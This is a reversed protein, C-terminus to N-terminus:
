GYYKEKEHNIRFRDATKTEERIIDPTDSSFRLLTGKVQLPYSVQYVREGNHTEPGTIRCGKSQYFALAEKNGEGTTLCFREMGAARASETVARFLSTGVGKRRASPLVSFFTGWAAPHETDANAYFGFAGIRSGNEDVAAILTGNNLLKDCLLEATTLKGNSLQKGDSPQRRNSLPPTLYEGLVCITQLADARATLRALHFHFANGTSKEKEICASLIDSSVLRISAAPGTARRDAQTLCVPVPKLSNRRYLAPAKMSQIGPEAQLMRDPVERGALWRVIAGPLDAGAMHSFPYGGGFRANLDLVYPVGEETMIVDCDLDAPHPLLRGLTAGLAQLRRGEPSSEDVIEAADTEGARMGLKKKVITTRYRGQLDSIIDLNFETGFILEQLILPEKTETLAAPLEERRRVIVTHRSGCGCRPKVIMPFALGMRKQRLRLSETTYTCPVGIGHQRLFRAMALKDHCLAAVSLEPVLLRTGAAGFLAGTGPESLALTDEDLLPVVATVTHQACFQQLFPLYAKERIRPSLWAGDVHEAYLAAGMGTSNMVCVRGRELRGAAREREFAAHFWAPLYTRRGVSTLLITVEKGMNYVGEITRHM